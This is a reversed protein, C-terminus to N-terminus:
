SDRGSISIRGGPALGSVAASSPDSCSTRLYMTCIAAGEEVWGIAAAPLASGGDGGDSCDMDSACLKRLEASGAKSEARRVCTNGAGGPPALMLLTPTLLPPM